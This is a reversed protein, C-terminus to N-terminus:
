SFLGEQDNESKGGVEVWNNVHGGGGDRYLVGGEGMEIGRGGEKERGTCEIEEPRQGRPGTSELPRSFGSLGGRAEARFFQKHM